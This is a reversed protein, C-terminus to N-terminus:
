VNKVGFFASCDDNKKVFFPSIFAALLSSIILEIGYKIIENQNFFSFNLIDFYFFLGFFVFSLIYYYISSIGKGLDYNYM